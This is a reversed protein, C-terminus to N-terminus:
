PASMKLRYCLDEKLEEGRLARLSVFILTDEHEKTDKTYKTNLSNIIAM